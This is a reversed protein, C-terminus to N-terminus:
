PLLYHSAIYTRELRRRASELSLIELTIWPTPTTRSSKNTKTLLPDHHDLQSRITAFFLDLLDPLRSPPNTILPSSNLDDIFKPYDIANIRRYTFTKPPPPPNPRVNISTFIPYHDSTVIHSSTIIPNITTNAHTIILDLTHDHRHTPIKIHQTLNCSTFFNSQRLIALTMLM